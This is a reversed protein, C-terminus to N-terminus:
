NTFLMRLEQVSISFFFPLFTSMFVHTLKPTVATILLVSNRFQSLSLKQIPEWFANM